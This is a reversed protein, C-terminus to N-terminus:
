RVTAQITHTVRFPVGITALPCGDTPGVDVGQFALTVGLLNAAAPVAVAMSSGVLTALAPSQVGQRCTNGAGCAASPTALPLGAILLPLGAPTLRIEFHGGLSATGVAVIPTTGTTGCGTTLTSFMAGSTRAEYITGNLNRQGAVPQLEWAAFCRSTDLHGAPVMAFALRGLNPVGIAFSRQNEDVTALLQSAQQLRFNSARVATGERYCMALRNGDGVVVPGDVSVTTSGGREAETLDITGRLVFFGPAVADIWAAQVHSPVGDQWGVVFAAGTTTASISGLTSSNARLVIPASAVVASGLTQDEVTLFTLTGLGRAIDATEHAVGWRGDPGGLPSIAIDGLSAAGFFLTGTGRVAGAADVVSADIAVTSLGSGTARGGMAVLFANGSSGGGVAVRQPTAIAAVPQNLVAGYNVTGATRSRRKVAAPAAEVWAILFQDLVEHNAVAIQTVDTAGTEAFTRELLTGDRDFRLVRVDRDALNFSDLCVVLWEGRRPDVALRPNELQETSSDIVVSRVFPDVVIPWAAGDLWDSAVVLHMAGGHWDFALPLSRGAADRVIAETCTVGGHGPCAWQLGDANAAVLDLETQVDIAFHLDGQGPRVPLVFTQEAGDDRLEWAETCPGHSWEVQTASAAVPPAAQLALAQQGARVEVLRLSLPWHRDAKRFRPYFHAVGGDFGIKYSDGRAWLVGAADPSPDLAVGRAATDLPALAVAGDASPAGHQAALSATALVFSIWPLVFLTRM